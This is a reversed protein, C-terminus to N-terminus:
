DLIKLSTGSGDANFLYTVVPFEHQTQATVLIQNGGEVTHISAPTFLAAPAPLSISVGKSLDITRVGAGYAYASRTTYALQSGDHNVTFFWSVPLCTDLPTLLRQGTSDVAYGAVASNPGGRFFSSGVFVTRGSADLAPPLILQPSAVTCGLLLLTVSRM